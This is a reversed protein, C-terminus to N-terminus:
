FGPGANLDCWTDAAQVEACGQFDASLLRGGYRGVPVQKTFCLPILTYAIFNWFLCINKGLLLHALLLANDGSVPQTYRFKRSGLSQCEKGAEPLPGSGVWGQRVSCCKLSVMLGGRTLFVKGTFSM